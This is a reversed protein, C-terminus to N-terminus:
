KRLLLVAVLGFMGLLLLSSGSGGVTGAPYYVQGNQLVGGGPLVTQTPTNVTQWVSGFVSGATNVISALGDLLGGSGIGSGSGTVGDFVGSGGGPITLSTVLRTTPNFGNDLKDFLRM